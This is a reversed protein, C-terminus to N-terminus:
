GALYITRVTVGSPTGGDTQNWWECYSLALPLMSTGGTPAGWGVTADATVTSQDFGLVPAFWHERDGAAVVRVRDATIEVEPERAQEDNQNALVLERATGAADGCGPGACDQAIALAAADAGTQLQQKDAYIAAVDIAIAALGILPIMFLATVVAM